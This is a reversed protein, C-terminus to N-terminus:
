DLPKLVDSVGTAEKPYGKGPIFPSGTLDRKLSGSMGIQIQDRIAFSSEATSWGPGLRFDFAIVFDQYSKVTWLDQAILGSV